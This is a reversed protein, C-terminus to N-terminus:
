LSAKASDKKMRLISQQSMSAVLNGQEDWLRGESYTRGGGGRSTVKERLHWSDLKVDTTFVRFAFDLSSCAATDEFWLHNHTLPLFSLAGDMLFALAALNGGASDLAQKTRQWEVSTKATIPRNDQTTPVDKASGALNQSSVGNVCYRTEFFDASVGFSQKFAQVQAGTVDGRDKLSELHAEVTPSDEPKAFASVPPASYTLLSPEDVHFDALLELCIRFEGNAQKQKIQVRRTAFSRTDRTNQVSCYLKQSTSAPGLYHGLVSYLSFQSTVTDCAASVAVALTCGGYAIPMANGMRVPCLKSVYEGPQLSEVGVQEALTPAM